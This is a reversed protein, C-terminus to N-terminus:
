KKARIRSLAWSCLSQTREISSAKGKELMKLVSQIGGFATRVESGYVTCLDGILGASAAMNDESRDDDDAISKIYNIIFPITPELIKVDSSPKVDDGKLGQLIGTYAELCGDRLSNLYVIMDYDNKDIQACSAQNLMKLSTELYPKFEIGVALAIDGIASLIHPKILRHCNPNSLNQMLITMVEALLVTFQKELARCLDGVVGVTTICVQYEDVRQLGQILFPKFDALHKMFEEKIVQVVVGVTSIADDQVGGTRGVSSGLMLQMAKMVMHSLQIADQSNVKRLLSQMTACLLSAMDVLQTRSPGAQIQSEAQLITELKQLMVLATKQVTEYCDKPSFKIMDGIAEYAANRLNSQGSDQREATLILKEVIITFSGSLAYTPPDDDEEVGEPIDAAEYAAEALSSIAWCVNTAVRPEMGLGKVLVQLLPHLVVETVVVDQLIQCIRGLSWAATDRVQVVEDEKVMLHILREFHMKVIPEVCQTSPGEVIAGLTFVAADRFRWDANGINESIFQPILPTPMVNEGIAPPNIIDNGICSAILMMCVGAAKSPTWDDEDDHEDQRALTACLIPLLYLLAGKIYFRSVVEPIRHQAEAELAEMALDTEEDCVTSWFEIGQLAEEDEQSKMATLTITFLAPGMYAEMYQYYMSVIKVLNQLAAVRIRSDEKCQTCECVVQMIYHREGETEFNSTTLELCNYLAKTAALRIRLNTEEKRMGKIVATLIINSKVALYRPDLDECIYSLAELSAERLKAVESSSVNDSLIDLIDYWVGTPLEACAISAICQAAQSPSSPETALANVVLNKIQDRASADILLWRQQFQLKANEDKSTLCNKLYLGAAQRVVANNNVNALAQALAFM